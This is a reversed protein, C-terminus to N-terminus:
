YGLVTQLLNVVCILLGFDSSSQKSLMRLASIIASVAPSSVYVRTCVFITSMVLAAPEPRRLSSQAHLLGKFKQLSHLLLGGHACVLRM